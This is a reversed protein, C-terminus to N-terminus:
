GCSALTLITLGLSKHLSFVPIVSPTKPLEVMVLGITGQVLILLVVTWHFFKAV